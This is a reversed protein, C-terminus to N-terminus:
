EIWVNKSGQNHNVWSFWMEFYWPLADEFKTVMVEGDEYLASYDAWDVSLTAMKKEMLNNFHFALSIDGDNVIYMIEKKPLRADEENSVPFYLTDSENYGQYPEYEYDRSFGTDDSLVTGEPSKDKFQDFSMINSSIITLKTWLFDWVLSKWLSQSWLSETKSDYMLLNSEYLKGSVWFDLVKWNVERDFVISSWCLPCFTVAIDKGGLKDNVIEHWTLIAFPYFKADEWIKVSAWLSEWDIFPLSEADTISLFKPSNIAPIWDKWPGWDLISTLEISRKSTDTKLDSFYQEPESNTINIDKQIESWLIFVALATFTIGIFM